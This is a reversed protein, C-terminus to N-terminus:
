RGFLRGLLGRKEPEPLGLRRCIACELAHEDVDAGEALIEDAVMVAPAAPLDQEFWEDCQYAARPQSTTEVAVQPYKVGLRPM